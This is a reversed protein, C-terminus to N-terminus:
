TLFHNYKKDQTYHLALLRVTSIHYLSYFFLLM